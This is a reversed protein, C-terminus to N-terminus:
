HRKFESILTMNDVHGMFVQRCCVREFGVFDLAQKRDEREDMEKKLEEFKEVYADWHRGVPKGCSKCRVEILM